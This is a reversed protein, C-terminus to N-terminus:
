SVYDSRVRIAGHPVNFGDDYGGDSLHQGGDIPGSRFKRAANASGDTGASSTGAIDQRIPDLNLGPPLANNNKPSSNRRFSGGGKFLSQFPPLCGVIVASKFFNLWLDTDSVTSGLMSRPYTRTTEFTRQCECVTSEIIGWLALLVGDAFAKRSIQIARAMAVLIIIIGLSFVVAIGIKQKPALRVPYLLNLPLAIVVTYDIILMTGTEGAVETASASTRNHVHVICKSMIDTLIDVTQM